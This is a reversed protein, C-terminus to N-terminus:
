CCRSGTKPKDNISCTQWYYEVPTRVPASTSQCSHCLLSTTAQMALTLASNFDKNDYLSPQDHTERFTGVPLLLMTENFDPEVPNLNCASFDHQRINFYQCDTVTALLLGRSCCLV